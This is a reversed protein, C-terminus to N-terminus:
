AHSASTRFAEHGRFIRLPLYMPQYAASETGVPQAFFQFGLHRYLKLQRLTGSVVALDCGLAEFVRSFHAVLGRFVPGRRHERTVALLRVEVAKRHEPLWRDLEPIKQDLSFPRDCRGCLM